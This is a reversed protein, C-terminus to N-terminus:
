AHSVSDFEAEAAGLRALLGDVIARVERLDDGKVHFRLGGQPAAEESMPHPDNILLEMYVASDEGEVAAFLFEAKDLDGVWVMKTEVETM